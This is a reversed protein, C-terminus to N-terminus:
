SAEGKFVGIAIAWYACAAISDIAFFHLLGDLGM